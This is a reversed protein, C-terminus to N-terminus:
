TASGYIRWEAKILLTAYVNNILKNPTLIIKDQTCQALGPPAYIRWQVRYNNTRTIAQRQVSALKNDHTEKLFQMSSLFVDFHVYEM